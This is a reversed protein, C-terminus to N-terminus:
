SRLVIKQRIQNMLEKQYYYNLNMFSVFHMLRENKKIFVDSMIYYVINQHIEALKVYAWEAYQYYLSHNKYKNRINIAISFCQSAEKLNNLEDLLYVGKYYAHEEDEYYKLNRKKSRKNDVYKDLIVLDIEVPTENINCIDHIDRTYKVDKIKKFIKPGRIGFHGIFPLIKPSFVNNSSNKINEIIRKNNEIQGLLEYSDDIFIVIDDLGIMNCQIATNRLMSLSKCNKLNEYFYVGCELNKKINEFQDFDNYYVIAFDILGNFSKLNDFNHACNTTIM